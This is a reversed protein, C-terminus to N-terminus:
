YDQILTYDKQSVQKIQMTQRKSVNEEGEERRELKFMEVRTIVRSSTKDGFAAM